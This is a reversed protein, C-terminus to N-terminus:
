RTRQWQATARWAWREPGEDVPEMKWPGLELGLAHARVEAEYMRKGMIRSQEAILDTLDPLPGADDLQARVAPSLRLLPETEVASTETRIGDDAEDTM